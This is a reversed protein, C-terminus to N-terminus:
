REPIRPLGGWPCCRSRRCARGGVRSGCDAARSGVHAAVQEGRAVQESEFVVHVEGLTNVAELRARPELADLGVIEHGLRM